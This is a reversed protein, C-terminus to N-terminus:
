RKFTELEFSDDISGIQMMMISPYRVVDDVDSEVFDTGIANVRAM